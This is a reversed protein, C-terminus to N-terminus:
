AESLFWSHKGLDGSLLFSVLTVVGSDVEHGVLGELDLHLSFGFARNGLSLLHGPDSPALARLAGSHAGVESIDGILFDRNLLGFKSERSSSM